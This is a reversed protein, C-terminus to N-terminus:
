ERDEGYYQELDRSEEEIMSEITQLAVTLGGLIGERYESANPDEYQRHKALLKKKIGNLDSISM